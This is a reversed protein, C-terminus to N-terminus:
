TDSTIRNTEASNYKKKHWDGYGRYDEAAFGILIRLLIVDEEHEVMLVAYHGLNKVMVIHQARIMAKKVDAIERHQMPLVIKHWNRESLRARRYGVVM